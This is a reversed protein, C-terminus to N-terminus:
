IGEVYDQSLIKCSKINDKFDNKAFMAFVSKATYLDKVSLFMWTVTSHVISVSNKWIFLIVALYNEAKKKFFILEVFM